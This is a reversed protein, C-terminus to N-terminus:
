FSCARVRCPRVLAQLPIAPSVGSDINKLLEVIELRHKEAFFFSLPCLGPHPDHAFGGENFDLSANGDDLSWRFRLECASNFRIRTAM